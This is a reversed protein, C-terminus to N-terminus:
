EVLINEQDVTQTCVRNTNLNFTAIFCYILVSTINM